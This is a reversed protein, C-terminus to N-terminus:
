AIFIHCCPDCPLVFYQSLTGRAAKEFKAIFRNGQLFTNDCLLSADIRCLASRDLCFIAAIQREGRGREILIREDKLM